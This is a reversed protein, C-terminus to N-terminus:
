YYFLRHSTCAFVYLYRPADPTLQTPSPPKVESRQKGDQALVTLTKTACLRAAAPGTQAARLLHPVAKPSATLAAKGASLHVANWLARASQELCVRSSCALLEVLIPVAGAEVVKPLTDLCATLARLAGAMLGACELRNNPAEGAEPEAPGAHTFRLKAAASTAETVVFPLAHPLALLEHCGLPTELLESLGQWGIVSNPNDSLFDLFADTGKAITVHLRGGEAHVLGCIVAASAQALTRNEQSGKLMQVLSPLANARVIRVGNGDCNDVLSGLLSVCAMRLEEMDGQLLAVAPEIGAESAVTIGMEIGVVSVGHLLWAAAAATSEWLPEGINDKAAEMLDILVHILDCNTSCDLLREDHCGVVQPPLWWNEPPACFL